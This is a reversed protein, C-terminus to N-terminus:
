IYYIIYLYRLIALQLILSFQTTTNNYQQKFPSSWVCGINKVQVAAVVAEAVAAEAGGIVKFIEAL